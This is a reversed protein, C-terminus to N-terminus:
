IQFKDNNLNQRTLINQDVVAAYASHSSKFVSYLEVFLWLLYEIM